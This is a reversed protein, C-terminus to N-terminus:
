EAVGFIADSFETLENGVWEEKEEDWKGVLLTQANLKQTGM